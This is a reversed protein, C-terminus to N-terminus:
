REERRTRYNIVSYNRYEFPLLRQPNDFNSLSLWRQNIAVYLCPFPEFYGQRTDSNLCSCIARRILGPKNILWYTSITYITKRWSLLVWLWHELNWPSIEQSNAILPCNKSIHVVSTSSTRVQAWAGWSYWVTLWYLTCWTDVSRKSTISTLLAICREYFKQFYLIM